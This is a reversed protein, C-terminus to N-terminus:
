RGGGSAWALLPAFRADSEADAVVMGLERRGKDTLEYYRGPPRRADIEAPDEWGDRMWGERLMRQLLPYLVGSRLGSRKMLAYGWHRGLPDESLALALQVLPYTRRM